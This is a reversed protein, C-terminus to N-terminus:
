VHRGGTRQKKKKSLRCGGRDVRKGEVVRKRDPTKIESFNYSDFVKRLKKRINEKKKLNSLCVDSSGTFEASTHGGKSSFFFYQPGFTRLWKKQSTDRNSLRDQVWKARVSSTYKMEDM